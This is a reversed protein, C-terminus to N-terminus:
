LKHEPHSDDKIEPIDFHDYDENPPCGIYLDLDFDFKVGSVRDNGNTSVPFCLCQNNPVRHKSLGKSNRQIFELKRKFAYAARKMDHWDHLITHTSTNTNYNVKNGEGYFSTKVFFIIIRYREWDGEKTSNIEGRSTPPPMLALPYKKESIVSVLEGLEDSNIEQAGYRYSMHFRGQITKSQKLIATFLDQIYPYSVM